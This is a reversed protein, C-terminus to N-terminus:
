PRISDISVFYSESLFSLLIHKLYAFLMRISVATVSVERDFIPNLSDLKFIRVRLSGVYQRIADSIVEVVVDGNNDRYPSALVPSFGRQAFYAYM